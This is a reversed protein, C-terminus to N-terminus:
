RRRQYNMLAMEDLQKQDKRDQEAEYALKKRQKHRDLLMCAKRAEIWRMKEEELRFKAKEEQQSSLELVKRLYESHSYAQKLRDTRTIGIADRQIRKQEYRQQDLERKALDSAYEEAVM